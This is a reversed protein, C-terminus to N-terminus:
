WHGAEMPGVGNCRPCDIRYEADCDHPLEDDGDPLPDLDGPQLRMDRDVPPVGAEQLVPFWRHVLVANAILREARSRDM